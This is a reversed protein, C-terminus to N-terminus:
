CNYHGCSNFFHLSANGLHLLNTQLHCTQIAVTRRIVLLHLTKIYNNIFITQLGAKLNLFPGMGLADCDLLLQLLLVLLVKELSVVNPNFYITERIRNFTYTFM